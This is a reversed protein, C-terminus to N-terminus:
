DHPGEIFRNQQRGWFRVANFVDDDLLPFILVAYHYFDCHSYCILLVSTENVDSTAMLKMEVRKHHKETNKLSTFICTINVEM